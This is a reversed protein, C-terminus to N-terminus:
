KNKGKLTVIPIENSADPLNYKVDIKIWYNKGHLGGFLLNIELNVPIKQWQSSNVIFILNGDMFDLNIKYGKEINGRNERNRVSHYIEDSSFIYDKGQNREYNRENYIKKVANQVLTKYGLDEYQLQYYNDRIKTKLINKLHADIKLQRDINLGSKDFTSIEKNRFREYLGMQIRIKIEESKSKQEATNYRFFMNLEHTEFEERIYEKITNFDDRSIHYDNM